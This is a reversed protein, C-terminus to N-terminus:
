FKIIGNFRVKVFFLYYGSIGDKIVRKYPYM